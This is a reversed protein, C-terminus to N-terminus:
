AVSQLFGEIEETLSAYLSWFTAVSQANDNQSKFRHIQAEFKRTLVALAQKRAHDQQALAEARRNQEAIQLNAISLSLQIEALAKMLRETEDNGSALVPNDLKGVAIAEALRTARKLPSLVGRLLMFTALGGLLFAVGTIALQIDKNEEALLEAGRRFLAPEEADFAKEYLALPLAARQDLFLATFLNLALFIACASLINLRITM